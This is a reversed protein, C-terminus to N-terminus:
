RVLRFFVNASNALGNTLVYNPGNVTAPISSTTWQSGPNLSAASELVFGDAYNTPWQVLVNPGSVQVSLEPRFPTVTGGIIQGDFPGSFGFSPVSGTL